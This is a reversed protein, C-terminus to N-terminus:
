EGDRKIDHEFAVTIERPENESSFYQKIYASVISPPLSSNLAEDEFIMNLTQYEQSYVNKFYDRAAASLKLWRFFGSINPLRPPSEALCVSVYQEALNPVSNSQCIKDLRETEGIDSLDPNDSPRM